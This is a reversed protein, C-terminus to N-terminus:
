SYSLIFPQRDMDKDEVNYRYRYTVKLGGLAQDITTGKSPYATENEGIGSAPSYNSSLGIITKDKIM